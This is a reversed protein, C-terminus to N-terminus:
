KRWNEHDYKTTMLLDFYIPIRLKLAISSIENGSTCGLIKFTSTLVTILSRSFGGMRIKKCNSLFVKFRTFFPGWKSNRIKSRPNTILLRSFGKFKNKTYNSRFVTASLFFLPARRTESSAIFIHVCLRRLLRCTVVLPM